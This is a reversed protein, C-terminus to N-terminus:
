MRDRPGSRDDAVHRMQANDSQRQNWTDEEENSM